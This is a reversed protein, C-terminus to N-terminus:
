AFTPVEMQHQAQPHRAWRQGASSPRKPTSCANILVATLRDTAPQRWSLQPHEAVFSKRKRPMGPANWAFRLGFVRLINIALVADSVATVADTGAAMRRMADVRWGRPLRALGAAMRAGTERDQQRDWDVEWNRGAPPPAQGAHAQQSSARLAEDLPTRRAANVPSRQGGLVLAQWQAPLVELIKLHAEAMEGHALRCPSSPSWLRTVETVDSAHSMVAHPTMTRVSDTRSLLRYVAAQDSDPLITWIGARLEDWTLLTADHAAAYVTQQDHSECAALIKLAAGIRGARRPNEALTADLSFSCIGPHDSFLACTDQPTPGTRPCTEKALCRPVEDDTWTAWVAGAQPTDFQRAIGWHGDRSHEALVCMISSHAIGPVSCRDAHAQTRLAESVPIRAGCTRPRTRTPAPPEGPRAPQQAAYLRLDPGQVVLGQQRLPKVAKSITNPSVRFEAALEGNTPLRSGPPCIGELLRERLVREIHAAHRPTKGPSPAGPHHPDIVYLGPPHSTAAVLKDRKLPTMAAHVTGLAVGFEAALATLPPLWTGVPYTSNRLREQLVQGIKQARNPAPPPAQREVAVYGCQPRFHLVGTNVLHRLAQHVGGESIGLESSLVRATPLVTGPGYTGDALRSQIVTSIHEEGTTQPPDQPQQTLDAHALGAAPTPPHTM